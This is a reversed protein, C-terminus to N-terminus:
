GGGTNGFLRGPNMVNNPDLQKKVSKLFSYYVPNRSYVMEAVPGFPRDINAGLNVLQEYAEIHLRELRTKEGKEQNAYIYYESFCARGLEVPTISVGVENEPYKHRRILRQLASNLEPLRDLTTYFSIKRCVEKYGLLRSIRQPYSLEELFEEAIREFGPLATRPEIGLDRVDEEQYKTKEEPGTLCLLLTWDPLRHLAELELSDDSILAWMAFNNLLLCEEGIELRQIRYLTEVAEVIKNFPVFLIKRSEPIKKVKITIKSAIGLTGQSATFLRSLDPGGGFPWFFPKERNDMAAAGTKLIDGTPLIIEMELICQWGNSLLPKPASLLTGREMYFNLVPTTSPLGMPNMARLGHKELEKQLRLFTVGPEITVSRSKPDLNTIRDMRSFDFLVGGSPIGNIGHYEDDCVRTFLKFGHQNAARVIKQIEDTSRPSVVYAQARREVHEEGVIGALQELVTDKSM